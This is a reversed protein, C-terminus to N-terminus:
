VTCQLHSCVWRRPIRRVTQVQAQPQQGGEEEEGRGRGSRLGAQEPPQVPAWGDEMWPERPRPRWHQQGPGGAGGPCGPVRPIVNGVGLPQRTIFVKFELISLSFQFWFYFMQKYFLNLTFTKPCNRKLAADTCVASWSQPCTFPFQNSFLHSHTLYYHTSGPGTLAWHPSPYCSETEILYQEFYCASNLM